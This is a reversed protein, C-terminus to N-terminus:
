FRPQQQTFCHIAGLGWVLDTCDIGVVQHKPCLNQLIELAKRDTKKKRFTPVLLAGNVFYFNAYSAPLRQRDIEVVGPTPLEVINFPKGDQDRAARLRRLNEQLPEYNPDTKDQEVITVITNENVFRALDDVHGDTDDGQIGDDLWVVHKQGYYEKLYREVEWDKLLPNRNSNLLVSETTLVTGKGNFDVAGGEMVIKPYFVPLDLLEAIETPVADDDAWGEYKQGWANFVWDVIAAETKGRLGKRLVFAPGHDRCWSENTKIHFFRVNTLPVKHERLTKQVIVEYNYNQVLLNVQERAAIERIIRCVNPIVYEYRDPFSACEPRPWSIWTASHPYWEPPFSYGLQNPTGRTIVKLTTVKQM